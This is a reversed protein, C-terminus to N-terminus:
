GILEFRDVDVLGRDTIKLHPIVPLAIFALQLFPEELTTGLSGAAARLAVLADRVTEFSELSMLGAVPLPLEALVQGETVVVFGGEIDGLRNCALAMDADDAGVVIINHHDHCVTSAIAGRRLGFGNVFGVALNGNRGHRELVAVKLHDNAVDCAAAGDVVPLVAELRETIIRGPVIGIVPTAANPAPHRFDASGVRKAKVSRRAVPAVQERRAFAADDVTVGGALVLQARCSELSDLAVIDARRGPAILGRDRLGFITAASHSAARYVALPSAGAAIATRIM